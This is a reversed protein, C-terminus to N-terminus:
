IWIHPSFSLPLSLCFSFCLSLHLICPIHFLFSWRQKNPQRYTSLCNGRCTHTRTCMHTHTYITCNHLRVMCKRHLKDTNATMGYQTNNHHTSTAHPHLLNQLSTHINIQIPRKQNAQKPPFQKKCTLMTIHKYQVNFTIFPFSLKKSKVNQFQFILTSCPPVTCTCTHDRSSPRCMHFQNQFHM